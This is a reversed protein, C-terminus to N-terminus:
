GDIGSSLMAWPDAGGSDLALAGLQQEWYRADGFESQWARARLSFHRLRHDLTFGIAGHVQHANRTVATAARSAQAKAVAIAFETAPSDFGHMAARQVAATCAASTAAVEGAADAVLIQVAQFKALSRGFQSRETVHEVSLDLATELVGLLQVSRALAGRYMWEAATREPVPTVADDPVEIDFVIRDRPEHALNRGPLVTAQAIPVSLVVSEEDSTEGLVVVSEVDRAWPVRDCAGSVRRNGNYSPGVTVPGTGASQPHAPVARGATTLLWAALLDCEALPLAVAHEAAVRVVTASEVIGAGSGGSTEPTSMLTLGSDSLTSWLAADFEPALRQIDLVADAPGSVISRTLEDVALVDEEDPLVYTAIKGTM